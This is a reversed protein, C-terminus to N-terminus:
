CLSSVKHTHVIMPLESREQKAQKAHKAPKAKSQKGPNPSRAAFPFQTGQRLRAAESARHDDDDELDRIDSEVREQEVMQKKIESVLEPDCGGIHTAVGEECKVEGEDIDVDATNIGELQELVQQDSGAIHQIKTQSSDLM